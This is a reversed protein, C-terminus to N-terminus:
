LFTFILPFSHSVHEHYSLQDKAYLVLLSKWDELKRSEFYILDTELERSFEILDSKLIEMETELQQIQERTKDISLSRSTESRSDVLQTISKSITSFISSSRSSPNELQHL